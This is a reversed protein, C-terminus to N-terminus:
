GQWSWNIVTLINSFSDTWPQFGARAELPRWKADRGLEGLDAAERALVVWASPFRISALGDSRKPSDTRIRAILGADKAAAALVPELDLHRNSIHVALIGGPAMVRLYGAIAERTLLHVPIADSSFADLVLIQYAANSAHKLELRADGHVVPAEPQCDRLYTFYRPNRAIATVLPDIEYFTWADGAKGYCALSGAGLGVVGVTRTGQTAAASRSFIDGAPGARHYYTMPELERGRATSQIGHITTGHQFTRTQATRDDEVRYVGFYSRAGFLTSTGDPAAATSGALFVAGLMLAFRFPRHNSSLILGAAIATVPVVVALGPSGLVSRGLFHAGFLAAPLLVDLARAGVDGKRIGPRLMAAAVLLLPYEVVSNFAIPAVLASFIGGLLGGVSIWVFFETLHAPAPRRRALEGHCVMAVVFLVLVHLVIGALGPVRFRWMIPVCVLILLQSQLGLMLSHPIRSGTDFVLVFTLLYLALPLIWLMPAAAVDTSLYTTVSLLLSSPVASYIVWRARDMWGIAPAPTSEILKIRPLAPTSRTVVWACVGVLAVLIVYGISWAMRQQGLTLLPEILLPYSVLAVLSGLNSAAYLFYPNGARPHDSQSFWRQAVLAGSGLMMFPIGLSAALLAILWLIGGAGAPPDGQMRLQLPLVACSLVLLMAHAAAHRRLFLLRTSFHAYLYGVLLAFQFFVLCTNWVSPTGGLYPLVAKAFMPEVSFLLGANFFVTVAFIAVLGRPVRAQNGSTTASDVAIATATM